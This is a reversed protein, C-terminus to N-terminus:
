FLGVPDAQKDWSDIILEQREVAKGGGGVTYAIGTTDMQFQAFAKRIDPHDNISLIAKGKIRAMLAAMREYESFPFDVGYGETEWYPPALYFLTHPRDYREIYRYGAAIGASRAALAM